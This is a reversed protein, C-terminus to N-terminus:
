LRSAAAHALARLASDARTPNAGADITLLFTVHGKRGVLMPAHEYAADGVGPVAQVGPVNAFYGIALDRYLYLSAGGATASSSAYSCGSLLTGGPGADPPPSTLPFQTVPVGLAAQVDAATLVRCAELTLGGATAASPAPSPTAPTGASAGTPGFSCAALALLPLAAIWVRM